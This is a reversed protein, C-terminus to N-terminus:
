LMIQREYFAAFDELDVANQRNRSQAVRDSFDEPASYLCIFTAWKSLIFMMTHLPNGLLLTLREREM